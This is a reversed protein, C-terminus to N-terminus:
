NYCTQREAVIELITRRSFAGFFASCGLETYRGANRITQLIRTLGGGIKEKDSGVM